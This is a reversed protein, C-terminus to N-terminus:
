LPYTIEISWMIGIGRFGEKPYERISALRGGHSAGSVHNPGAVDPNEQGALKALGTPEESLTPHRHSFLFGPQTRENM